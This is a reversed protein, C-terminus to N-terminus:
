NKVVTYTYFQPNGTPNLNLTLTYSGAGAITINSGGEDLKGDAGNDGFNLTWANNAKFKLGGAGAATVTVKWVKNVADYVMQTDGWSNFDGSASWTTKLASWTMASLDVSIRYYGATAVTMNNEGTVLLKGPNAPDDGMDNNWSGITPLLKFGDGSGGALDLYLEYKLGSLNRNLAPATGNNWGNFNGVMYLNDKATYPTITTAISDSYLATTGPVAAKVRMAISNAVDMNANLAVLKSNFESQKMGAKLKNASIVDVATAFKKGAKDIQVTYTTGLPLGFDAASWTFKVSDNATTKSLVIATGATPLTLVAKTPSTGLTALTWPKECSVLTILCAIIIFLSIKKM